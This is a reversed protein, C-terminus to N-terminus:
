LRRGGAEPHRGLPPRNRKARGTRLEDQDNSTETKTKSPPRKGPTKPRDKGSVGDVLKGALDKLPERALFLAIGAVIGTTTLPRSRVADVANEAIDAGKDKAGEWAGRALTRPSLREQLRHASQMLRARAREAEIRAAAVEPPDSTM